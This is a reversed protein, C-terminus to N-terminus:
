MQVVPQKITGSLRLQKKSNSLFAALPNGPQAQIHIEGTLGWSQPNPSAMNIKGQGNAALEKGGVLNWPMTQEKITAQLTYDGLPYAQHMMNAAATLWHATLEGAQPLGTMSNLTLDGNIQLHGSLQALAPLALWTQAAHVDCIADIQTIQIADDQQALLADVAMFDNQSHINAALQAQLLSAFNLSMNLQDLLLPKNLAPSAMQVHSLELGNWHLQLGEYHLDIQQEALAADLEGRLWSESDWRIASFLLLAILFLIALKTTSVHPQSSPFIM